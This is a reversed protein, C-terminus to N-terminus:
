KSIFSTLSKNTHSIFLYGLCAGTTNLIIDDIDAVGVSFIYQIAEISFSLLVSILIVTSFRYTKLYMKLIIPLPFFLLINGFINSYYNFRGIDAVYPLERWENILPIINVDHPHGGRRRGIFFVLYFLIAFYSFTLILKLAHVIKKNV